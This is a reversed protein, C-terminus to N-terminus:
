KRFTPTSPVGKRAARSKAAWVFTRRMWLTCHWLGEGKRVFKATEPRMLTAIKQLSQGYSRKIIGGTKGHVCTGGAHHASQLAGFFGCIRQAAPLAAYRLVRLASRRAGLVHLWPPQGPGSQATVNMAADLVLRRLRAHPYRRTKLLTYLEEVDGAKRIATYLRNEIGESLGRLRALEEPTRSRLRSLVAISFKQGDSLEGRAVAERYLLAARAPVYEEAAAPGESAALERLKSASAIKRGLVEGTEDTNHGAGVRPLPLPQMHSGQRRIAKCYEVGLINNPQELFKGMGPALQEAAAARAAAFTMGQCMLGPLRRSLAPSDVLEAAREFNKEMPRNDSQLAVQGQAKLIERSIKIDDPAVHDKMVEDLTIDTFKKGTKSTISQKEHEALPYRM